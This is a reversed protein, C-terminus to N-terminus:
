DEGTIPNIGARRVGSKVRFAKQKEGRRVWRGEAKWGDFSRVEIGAERAKELLRENETAFTISAM